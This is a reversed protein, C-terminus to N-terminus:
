KKFSQLLFVQHATDSSSFYSHLAQQLQQYTPYFSFDVVPLGNNPTNLSFSYLDSKADFVVLYYDPIPDNTLLCSV